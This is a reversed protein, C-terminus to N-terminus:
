GNQLAERAHEEISRPETVVWGKARLATELQKDSELHMTHLIDGGKKEAEHAPHKQTKKKM